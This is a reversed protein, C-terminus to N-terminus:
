SIGFICNLLLKKSFLLYIVSAPHFVTPLSLITTLKFVNILYNMKEM